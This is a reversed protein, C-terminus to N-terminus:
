YPRTPESIHILSLAEIMRDLLFRPSVFIVFALGIGIPIMQLIVGVFLFCAFMSIGWYRMWSGVSAEDMGLSRLRPTIDAIHKQAIADWAPGLWQAALFTCVLVLLSTLLMLVPHASRVGVATQSLQDAPAEQQVATPQAAAIQNTATPAVAQEVTSQATAPM